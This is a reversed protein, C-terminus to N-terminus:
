CNICNEDDGKLGKNGIDGTLGKGGKNTNNKLCLILVLIFLNIIFLISIWKFFLNKNLTEKINELKNVTFDTFLIILMSVTSFLIAFVVVLFTQNNKNMKYM